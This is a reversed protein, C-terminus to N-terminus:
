LVVFFYKVMPSPVSFRVIYPDDLDHNWFYFIKWDIDIIDSVNFSTNNLFEDCTSWNLFYMKAPDLDSKPKDPENVTISFATQFLTLIIYLM